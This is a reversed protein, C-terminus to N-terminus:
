AIYVCMDISLDMCVHPLGSPTTPRHAHRHTHRHVHRGVHGYVHRYVHRHAHSAFGFTYHAMLDDHRHSSVRDARGHICVHKCVHTYVRTRVHTHVRASLIHMYTHLRTNLYPCEANALTPPVTLVEKRVRKLNKIASLNTRMGIRMGM